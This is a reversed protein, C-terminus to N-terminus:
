AMKNTKSKKWSMLDFVKATINKIVNPVCVRYCPNNINSCNGTCKNVKISYPYLMYENNVIVERAKCEQNKILVCKLSNVCSVLFIIAVIKKMVRFMKYLITKKKKKMLYAHIDQIKNNTIAKYDVSFHYVYGYLGTAHSSSFDKSIGALCLPYPAIESDKAKFKVLKRGNVFLYSDDSNYHLSLCIKKGYM